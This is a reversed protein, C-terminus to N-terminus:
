RRGERIPWSFFAGVLLCFAFALWGIAGPSTVVVHVFVVLALVALVGAFAAKAYYSASM